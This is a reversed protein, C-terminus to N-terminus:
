YVSLSESLHHGMSNAHRSTLRSNRCSSLNEDGLSSLPFSKKKRLSMSSFHFFSFLSFFCCPSLSPPFSFSSPPLSSICFSAVSLYSMPIFQFLTLLSCLLSSLSSLYVVKRCNHCHARSKTLLLRAQAPQAKLILPFSDRPHCLSQCFFSLVM